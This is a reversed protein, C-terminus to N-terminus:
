PSVMALIGSEDVVVAVVNILFLWGGLAGGTLYFLTLIYAARKM